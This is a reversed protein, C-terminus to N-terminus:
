VEYPRKRWYFSASTHVRKYDLDRLQEEDLQYAQVVTETCGYLWALREATSVLTHVLQSPSDHVYDILFESIIGSVRRSSKRINISAYGVVEKSIENWVVITKYNDYNSNLLWWQRFQEINQMIKSGAMIYHQNVYPNMIREISYYPQLEAFGNYFDTECLRRVQM